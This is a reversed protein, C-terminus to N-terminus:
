SRKGYSLRNQRSRYDPNVIKLVLTHSIGFQEGLRRSSYGDNYLEVILAESESTTHKLPMMNNEDNGLILHRPNVCPRNDCIHLVSCGDTSGVFLNFSLVHARYTRGRGRGILGYGGDGIRGLWKWCDDALADTPIGRIFKLVLATDFM